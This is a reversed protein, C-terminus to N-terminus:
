DDAAKSESVSGNPPCDVGDSLTVTRYVCNIARGLHTHAAKSRFLHRMEEGLLGVNGALNAINKLRTVQIVIVVHVLSLDVQLNRFITRAHLLTSNTGEGALDVRLAHM